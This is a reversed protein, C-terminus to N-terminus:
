LRRYLAYPIPFTRNNLVVGLLPVRAEDLREKVKQARSRRTKHAEIVLVVGDTLQSLHISDAYQGVPPACMLVYDFRERLQRFLARTRDSPIVGGRGPVPSGAPILWLNAGVPRAAFDLAAGSDRLAEALGGEAEEGFRRHLSPERLNADVICVSGDVQTALIEAARAGIAASEDHEPEVSAFLVVMRGAAPALFVRQVLKFEEERVLAQLHRSGPAPESRRGSTITDAPASRPVLASDSYMDLGAAVDSTLATHRPSRLSEDSNGVYPARGSKEM